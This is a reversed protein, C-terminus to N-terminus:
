GSTRSVSRRVGRCDGATGDTSGDDVIVWLTPPLTQKAVSEITLRAYEAEDRCPTILCYRRDRRDDQNRTPGSVGPGRPSSVLSDPRVAGLRTDLVTGAGRESIGVVAGHGHTRGIRRRRGARSRADHRGHRQRAVESDLPRVAARLRAEAARLTAPDLRDLGIRRLLQKRGLPEFRAADPVRAVAEVVASDVLPLRTELSVAM